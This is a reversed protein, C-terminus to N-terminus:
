SAGALLESVAPRAAQRTPKSAAAWFPSAGFSGFAPYSPGDFARGPAPFVGRHRASLRWTGAVARARSCPRAAQRAMGEIKRPPPFPLRRVRRRLSYPRHREDALGGQRGAACSGGPASPDSRGADDAMGRHRAGRIDRRRRRDGASSRLQFLIGGIASGIAQGTYLASTNLGVTASSLDPAAEVLRAQQMSNTAAFGLGWFVIGVGIVPLWGAGLTWLLM